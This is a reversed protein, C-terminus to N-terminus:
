SISQIDCDEAINKGEILVNNLAVGGFVLMIEEGAYIENGTNDYM